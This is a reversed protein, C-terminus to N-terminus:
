CGAKATLIGMTFTLSTCTNPDFTASLGPQLSAGNSVQIRGGSNGDISIVRTGGSTYVDFTGGDTSNASIRVQNGVSRTMTIAPNSSSSGGKIVLSDAGTGPDQFIMAAPGTSLYNGFVNLTVPGASSQKWYAEGSGGTGLQAAFAPTGVSSARLAFALADSGTSFYKAGSITQASTLDVFGSGSGCSGWETTKTTANLGKLCDGAAMANVPMDYPTNESGTGARWGTFTGDTAILLLPKGGLVGVASKNLAFSLGAPYSAQDGMQFEPDTASGYAAPLLKFARGEMRIALQHTDGQFYIDCADLDDCKLRGGIDNVQNRLYFHSRGLAGSRQELHLGSSSLSYVYQSSITGRFGLNGSGDTTMPQDALGDESAWVHTVNGPIDSPAILRAVNNGNATLERFIIGGTVSGTPRPNLTVRHFQAEALSAFFILLASITRM